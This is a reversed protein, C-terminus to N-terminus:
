VCYPLELRKDKLDVKIFTKECVGRASIDEKSIAQYLRVAMKAQMNWHGFLITTGIGLAFLASYLGGIKSLLEGIGFAERKTFVRDSSMM